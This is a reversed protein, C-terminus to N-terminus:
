DFKEYSPMAIDNCISIDEHADHVLMDDCPFTFSDYSMGLDVIDDLFECTMMDVLPIMADDDGINGKCEREHSTPSTSTTTNPEMHSVHEDENVMHTADDEDVLYFMEMDPADDDMSGVVHSFVSTTSTLNNSHSTAEMSRDVVERLESPTDSMDELHFCEIECIPHSDSLESKSESM